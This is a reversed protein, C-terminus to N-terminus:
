PGAVILAIIPLAFAAVGIFYAPPFSGRSFKQVALVAVYIIAAYFPVFGLYGKLETMHLPDLNGRLFDYGFENNESWQNKALGDKRVQVVADVLRQKEGETLLTLGPNYVSTDEDSVFGRELQIGELFCMECFSCVLRIFIKTTTCNGYREARNVSVTISWEAL